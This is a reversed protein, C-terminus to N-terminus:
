KKGGKATTMSWSGKGWSGSLVATTNGKELTKMAKIIDNMTLAGNYIIGKPTSCIIVKKKEEFLDDWLEIETKM